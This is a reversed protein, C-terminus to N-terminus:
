GKSRVSSRGGDVGIIQGTVWRGEDGLLLAALPAIDKPEGLRQLAHLGAIAGALADNSTLGASLKTRSLSPALCNVRIRPALEAALALTLGEVAAKAMSISAHATFGQAAAVSSFFVISGGGKARVM